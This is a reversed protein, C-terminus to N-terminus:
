NLRRELLFHIDSVKSYQLANMEWNYAMDASIDVCLWSLWTPLSVGQAEGGFDKMRDVFLDIYKHLIPEKAKLARGSFAPSLQKAVQRHRVPDWEWIIGGHKDNGHNNIQTKPFLELNKNHTGYLDALARPTVFVLENPAICVVDGYKNLVDEIAWPWRERLMLFQQAERVDSFQIEPLAM